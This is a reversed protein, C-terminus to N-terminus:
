INFKPYGLHTEGVAGASRWLENKIYYRANRENLVKLAKALFDNWDLADARKDHNWRGVKWVGVWPAMLRILALAQGPDIVPEVSVWTRVGENHAQAIAARRSSLSEAGPEWQRALDDDTFAMTTGFEVLPNRLLDLDNVVAFMPAKTLIRVHIGADVLRMVSQRTLRETAELEQYPDCTFALLVPGDGPRLRRIDRELSAIFGARATPRAFEEASVRLVGPGYCYTCGHICGRYPNAALPAYERAAGRPEYIVGYSAAKKTGTTTM